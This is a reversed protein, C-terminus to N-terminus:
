MREVNPQYSKVPAQKRRKQKSRRLQLSGKQKSRRLQKNRRLKSRRQQRRRRKRRRRQRIRIMKSRGVEKYQAQMIELKLIRHLFGLRPHLKLQM